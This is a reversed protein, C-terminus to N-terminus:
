AKATIIMTLLMVIAMILYIFDGFYAPLTAILYIEALVLCMGFIWKFESM